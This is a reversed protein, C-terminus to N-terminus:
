YDENIGLILSCLVFSFTQPGLKLRFLRINPFSCQVGPVNIKLYTMKISIVMFVLWSDFHLTPELVLNLDRMHQAKSWAHSQLQDSSIDALTNQAFNLLFHSKM